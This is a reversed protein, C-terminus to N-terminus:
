VIFVKIIIRLCLSIQFIGGKKKLFLSIKALPLYIFTAIWFCFFIKLSHPLRSILFRPLETIKHIIKFWLPKHDFKYYLYLLFPAGEKLKSVCSKLGSLTDPIHHLVGLCYGFDQSAEELPMDDVSANMFEVNNLHKLSEKAVALAEKAPDVCYLKGCFTAMMKAFRGSGCGADFGTSNKNILDFPFIDFYQFFMLSREEDSLGQQNYSSWEKGFSDVVKQDVNNMKKDM